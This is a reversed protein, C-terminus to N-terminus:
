RENLPRWDLVAAVLTKSRDSALDYATQMQNWPIRHSILSSLPLRGTAMLSLIYELNRRLNFRLEHPPCEVQPSLGAGLLTLQKAYLLAPDLPNRPSPPQARGPFGLISVRGGMRALELAQFYSIWSNSTLIVLDAGTRGFVTQVSSALNSDDTLLCDLAGLRKAAECRLTSNALGLVNAGMAKSLSITCMGIVGLGVVLVNEGPQYSAQRLAALGLQCLYTLSAEEVTV